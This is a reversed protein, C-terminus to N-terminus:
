SELNPTQIKLTKYVYVWILASFPFIAFSAITTMFPSIFSIIMGIIQGIIALIILIFLVKWRSGKTIAISQKFSPITKIASDLAIISAFVFTALVWFAPLIFLTFGILIAIIFLISAKLYRWFEARSVFFDHITASGQEFLKLAIKIVGAMGLANVVLSWISAIAISSGIVALDKPSNKLDTLLQKVAGTNNSSFSTYIDNFTVINPAFLSLLTYAAFGVFVFSSAYVLYLATASLMLGLNKIYTNFGYKIAEKISFNKYTKVEM